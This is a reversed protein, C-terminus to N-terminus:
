RPFPPDSQRPITPDGERPILPDSDAYEGIVASTSKKEKEDIRTNKQIDKNYLLLNYWNEGINRTKNDDGSILNICIFEVIKELPIPESNLIEGNKGGFFMRAADKCSKDSQPFTDILGKRIALAQEYDTVVTDVLLIIRFKRLEPTDSFSCYIINPKIGFDQFQKIVEDPTIGGDFDLAFVMQGLWNDNKRRGNFLSPCWTYSYPQTLYTFLESVTLGTIVILRNSITPIDNKNPKHAQRTNDLTITYNYEM